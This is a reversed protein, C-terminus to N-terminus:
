NETTLTISKLRVQNSGSVDLKLWKYGTTFECEYDKYSSTVSIKGIETWTKGEDNSGYIVLTDAKNGANVGISTIINNSKIIAYGNNTSSSYIRLESTFHCDTTVVTVNSDLVHEEDKAYQTGASYNSITYKTTTSGGGLGASCRDCVNDSNADSHGLAAQETTRVTAHCDNCTVTETGSVTCNATTTTTTNTHQCTPTEGGSEGGNSGGSLVYFALNQNKINDNVSTYCRVDQGNYVGLYRNTGTHKLYGSSADITFTKNNNTGVRVGNNTGTCYLWTTTKGNPYITLTGANNTINWQINEAPEGTLKDGSVTVKVATPAASTGKDNSLAYSTGKGDNTTWVIVVIDDPKIDNIDDVKVWVKFDPDPAGCSCKGSVYTHELKEVTQQPEIITDCVSCHSGKTLGTTTCTAEVAKDEVPTHGTAQITTQEILIENCVSCKKGTTLGTENCTADKGQITEETHPLKPIEVESVVEPCINCTVTISGVKSCTAPETTTTTSTHLCTITAGCRDCALNSDEDIHNLAPIEETTFHMCGENQCEFTRIGNTTCGPELTVKGVTDMKHGNAAVEDGKYTDGCHCTYTTYGGDTCTPDTVVSEYSHGNADIENDTYTDGCHCTYTTFGKETCTPDTVVANHKHGTAKVEDAQYSYGCASCTYTTYGDAECTPATVVKTTNEHECAVLKYISVDQQGSAYCSFLPSGNNPNYRLLNRTNSGQAKITAVGKDTIDVKWHGNASLGGAKLQNSNSSAAYLYDAGVKFTFVGKSVVGIKIVQVSSDIKVTNNNKEIVTGKRNDSGNVSLAYNANTAVIVIQDGEALEEVDKVLTWVETARCESCVGDEFDHAVKALAVYTTYDCRSCTEYANWGIETCTPTKAEHAVKNHGLADVESDTYSDSCGTCTHTTYGKATCTPATVVSEYDHELMTNEATRTDETGCGNDCSATETGNATCTADNNSTYKTFSHGTAPLTEKDQEDGCVSCKTHATYGDETCTADKSDVNEYKHALAAVEKTEFHDCNACDRQQEGAVECEPDKTVYWEGYSHGNAPIEEYTTYDCRSCTEYAKYGVETCTPAKANHSIEDHGLADVTITQRSLEAECVTCYTVNDYSGATTCTADVNNEVVVEGATHGTSPIVEDVTEDCNACEKHQSGDTTCTAKTDIIWEGFRHDTANTQDAVYSDKCASCTYTTYGDATCTPATVVSEYKHGTAKVEEQAVLVEQCVSCHSGETLGTETCTPAVAKDVVETHGKASLNFFPYDKLYDIAEQDGDKSNATLGCNGCTITIYGEETCTASTVQLNGWRHGTAKVTVKERSLEAECVTCYTVNDYSGTETCTADVENEVVVQGATHQAVVYYGELNENACYGNAVFNNNAGVPETATNSPDFNYFSGGKVIIEGPKSDNNNLTWKPTQAIFTGGNIEVVSGNKVYILDFHDETNNTSTAGVNTFTGGNIIVNGGDAWIAINYNNNGVGNITGQGNITLQGGAVVHFVGDGITDNSVTITYGNLDLTIQKDIVVATAEDVNNELVITDGANAQAVASSVTEYRTGNITAGVTLQATYDAVYSDGCHCTYTTYGQADFTPATVVSEYKHGLAKVEEQAVLVENCTSCHKGETLGTETCTPAVAKDVVETHGKASLNFFPYDKLYDIAEQDGDKSNATLDCNGCTITIYGDVTCTASTVQLNGWRHGKAEVVDDTYTDGCACTYTTYGDEECTPATVDAQYQHGKATLSFYPHDILYQKGEDDYRSDAIMNCNGCTITIYGDTTCTAPTVVLGSWRHGTAEVTITERSLEAKCVTCYTVNDYSGTETCTADVENEVVVEGATCAETELKYGCVCAQYHTHQQTNTTDYIYNFKHPEADASYGCGPRQCSAGYHEHDNYGNQVLLDHDLAVDVVPTRSLQCQCISCYVVNDHSGAETCTPAVPNEVVVEGATHSEKEVSETRLEAGCETCAFTKVGEATCSPQTTITGQDETHAGVTYINGAQISHYGDALKNTYNAGDCRHNAPDFNAFTGGTVVFKGWNEQNEEELIDLVYWINGYQEACEYHGGEIYVVSNTRAYIVDGCSESYFYGNKITLTSNNVCSVVSNTEAQSGSIMKGSGTIIVNSGDKIYLVEVVGNPDNWDAKLTHGNLDITLDKGVIDLSSTLDINSLLKVSCGFEVVTQLDAESSIEVVADNAIEQRESECECTPVYYLKEDVVIYKYTKAHGTANVTITERSLEVKCVTCYTVNDYSGATTCTADVKNEVVVQGATHGTANVKDAVYSDGCVSCTYTTYGDATCTPATVVSEYKHGTAPIEEYTTYDCRYCTEYAKYGVETCTADKADHQTLNHGLANVTIPQRSIEEECVTCYVVNDYSGATTCTADVNNEVVVEGATHGTAPIVEDETEDCNACEKHQSGDTTCTAKTDVIWEGFRHGTASLKYYTTHDCVSCTEYADWGDETCTPAKADHQTLNHGAIPIHDEETEDCNACDRHKKGYETCTANTDIIWQGFSHGTENVTVKERSLEEQCVTCYTVNEYSGDNLCDPDIKNEVVVNKNHGTAPIEEYTTYDCRSCTVYAKYGGETCTPAKADHQTLNHDLAPITGEETEDCNACEKHQSGAETCTAQTDIIWGGFSHGTANVTVKERSLEAGCDRCYTVEEYTGDTTCTEHVINEAVVDKNLHGTAPAEVFNTLDCRSCTIYPYHGSETCTPLKGDHNIIDHGLEPIEVYTTYACDSCTEYADWGLSTCTPAKADHQTIKHQATDTSITLDVIVNGQADFHKECVTCDKHGKTGTELCTAAVEDIWAGFSHAALSDLDIQQWSLQKQCVSCYVVSEYKGIVTCTSEVRNEVVAEGATHGVHQISATNITEGCNACVQHKSGNTECGPEVDVIWKGATHGTAPTEQYTTYNCLTCEDYADWGKNTCDAVQADHHVLNHANTDIAVDRTEKHESNHACVRTEVGTASCTPATTQQWEGYAHANTDIAVDETKTHASNHQCTFTKVGLASCTPATTVVGNDWTHANTDIAVIVDDATVQQGDVILAGCDLCEIHALVGATTCTASVASVDKTNVHGTASDVLVTIETTGQADSFKKDCTACGWYQLTGDNTCTPAQAPVETLAHGLSPIVTDAETIQNGDTDFFLGCVLCYKHDVIGSETCTPAEGGRSSLTHKGSECNGACATLSLVMVFALVLILLIRFSKKM